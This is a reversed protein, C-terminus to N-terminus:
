RVCRVYNDSSVNSYNVGGSDFYVYWAYNSDYPSSSWYEEYDSGFLASCTASEYCSNCYGSDGSTVDSDCDDLLDIFDDRGPLYWDTNGALDLDDCYDIAEQWEYTGSAKPHQWCLNTNEDLKGQGDACDATGDDSKEGDIEGQYTGPILQQENEGINLTFAGTILMNSFVLEAKGTSIDNEFVIDATTGSCMLGDIQASFGSAELIGGITCESASIVMTWNGSMGQMDGETIEWSGTWDGEADSCNEIQQQGGCLSGDSNGGGSAFFDCSVLVGSVFFLICFVLCKKKLHQTKM